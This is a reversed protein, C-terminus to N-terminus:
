KNDSTDGLNVDKSQYRRGMYTAVSAIYFNFAGSKDVKNTILSAIVCTCSIVVLSASISGLSTRPDMVVPMPIGFKNWKELLEKM